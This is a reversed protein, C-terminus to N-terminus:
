AEDLEDLRKLVPAAVVWPPPGAVEPAWFRREATVAFDPGRLHHLSVALADGVAHLTVVAGEGDLM